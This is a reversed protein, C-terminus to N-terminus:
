AIRTSLNPKRSAPDKRHQGQFDKGAAGAENSRAAYDVGAASETAPAPGGLMTHVALEEGFHFKLHALQWLHSIEANTKM